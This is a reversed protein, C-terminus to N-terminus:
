ADMRTSHPATRAGYQILCSGCMNEPPGWSRAREAAHHSQRATSRRSRRQESSGKSSRRYHRFHTNAPAPRIHPFLAPFTRYQVSIYPGRIHPSRSLTHPAPCTRPM